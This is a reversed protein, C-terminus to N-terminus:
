QNYYKAVCVRTRAFRISEASAGPNTDITLRNWEPALKKAPQLGNQHDISQRNSASFFNGSKRAFNIRSCKLSDRALTLM